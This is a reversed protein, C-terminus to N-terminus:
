CQVGGVANKWYQPSRGGVVRGVLQGCAANIDDGRTKRITTIIGAQILIAKFRNTTNAASGKYPADGFTNFPILNVKAPVERLCKALDSADRESDNLGKLMVYEITVPEGNRNAVYRKCASLLEQIPYARNLPMITNRLKDNSAHLSVALSVNTDRRLREVGPIIGATSVTVRRRALGFALDETLLNITKLVNDYNLLPEGMGMFVVNTVVRRSNDFDGLSKCSLWVQAVIENTALNRNFGQRATSCFRCALPCGAQSSICLTGRGNEPIFVTEVVNNDELRLLWKRTGDASKEEHVIKPLHICSTAALEARLSQSLTTMASFDIVGHRYIWRLVQGARFSPYGRESFFTKLSDLDYDLLNPKNTMGITDTSM